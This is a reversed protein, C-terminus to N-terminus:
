TRTPRLPKKVAALVKNTAETGIGNKKLYEGIETTVKSNIKSWINAETLQASILKGVEEPNQYKLNKVEEMIKASIENGLKELKQALDDSKLCKDVEASIGDVTTKLAYKDFELKIESQLTQLASADAKLEIKGKLDDIQGKLDNIDDDYDKCGVAGLLTGTLFVALFKRFLNNKM